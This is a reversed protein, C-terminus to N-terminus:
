MLEIAVATAEGGGICLTAVGRRLGRHRLAGLLTVILRAGTAGIPHGLACAGGHLNVKDHALDLEQMAAMAVVAFAENIEWLDVDGAQWDVQTLLKRVAGAPATTFRRPEQAHGAHGVVRALPQLGLDTATSARMLLLAAAGDSISSANAATVTGDPKFAPKLTAIKDLQAKLPQEDQAVVVERGRVVERVPAVEWDFAGQQIASQARTTSAIAYADQAQRTFGFEAACEEAFQGMLQGKAGPTYADELGDLFMHDLVQGHGLRHGARAKPLLYPANSMSEMGGALVVKASGCLLTDHALMVAKMGSGCVKSVTTCQTANPLGATLAAQRAPAQGLGAPLVCGLYVEDVQDAGLGARELTARLAAAGLAPATLSSLSGQFGGLPTRAASVIVVPDKRNM